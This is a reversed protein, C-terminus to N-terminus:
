YSAEEQLSVEGLIRGYLEMLNNTAADANARLYVQYRNIDVARRILAEDELALRLKLALDEPDGPRYLLGNIGPLIWERMTPIDSCVPLSGAVMAELMSNPSGDHTSPSLAVPSLAMLDFVEDQPLTPTLTVRDQLGLRNVEDALRSSEAGGVVVYHVRRGEDSIRLLRAVGQLACLHDIYSRLGRPNVILTAGRPFWRSAGNGNGRAYRNAWEQQSIGGGSPALISHGSFGMATAADIDRRCDSHLGDAARLVRRTLERLVLSRKAFLTLDNGWTSVVFAALDRQAFLCIMGEYPIRMAHLIDPRYADIVHQLEKAAPIHLAVDILARAEGRLSWGVHVPVPRLNATGSVKRVAPWRQHLGHLRAAPSRLEVTDIDTDWKSPRPRTSAVMVQVGRRVLNEGWRRVHPSRADGVILIRM